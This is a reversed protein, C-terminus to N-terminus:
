TVEQALSQTPPEAYPRSRGPTDPGAAKQPDARQEALTYFQAAWRRYATIPGDGKALRPRELYTKTQWISKDQNLERDGWASLPRLAQLFVQEIAALALGRLRPSPIRRLEPSRLRTASIVRLKGPDVPLLLMEGLMHIHHKPLDLHATIFGLGYGHVDWQMTTVGLLPFSREVELGLHYRHGFFEAPTTVRLDRYGHLPGFHGLDQLNEVFEQPYSEYTHTRLNPRLYGDSTGTPMEWEPAKAEAHQWVWIVGDTERSERQQLGAKPPPTGYATAVCAGAPDFALRHFPCVLNEDEVTGGVGLHAGLHPCYPRVVRLLGARTRYVVVDEGALRRRLVTGPKLERSLAVPFWGDPFPLLIPRDPDTAFDSPKRM